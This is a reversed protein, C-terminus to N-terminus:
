RCYRDIRSRIDPPTAYRRGDGLGGRPTAYFATEAAADAQLAELCLRDSERQQADSDTEGSGDATAPQEEAVKGEGGDQWENAFWGIGAGIGGVILVVIASMLWKQM